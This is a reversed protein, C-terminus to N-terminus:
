IRRDAELFASATSAAPSIQGSPDSFYASGNTLTLTQLPTWVLNALNACAEVVVTFDNTGSINFGFQNSRVGFNAGSAQIQPNWLVIRKSLITAIMKSTAARCLIGAVLLQLAARITRITNMNQLIWDRRENQSAPLM